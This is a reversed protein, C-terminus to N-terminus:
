TTLEPASNDKYHSHQFKHNIICIFITSSELGKARLITSDKRLLNKGDPYGYLNTKSKGKLCCNHKKLRTMSKIFVAIIEDIKPYYNKENKKTASDKRPLTFSPYRLYVCNLASCCKVLAANDTSDVWTKKLLQPANGSQIRSQTSIHM